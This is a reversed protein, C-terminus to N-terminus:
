QAGSILPNSECNRILVRVYPLAKITEEIEKDSQNSLMHDNNVLEKCISEVVTLLISNLDEPTMKEDEFRKICESYRMLVAKDIECAISSAIDLMRKMLCIYIKKEIENCFSVVQDYVKKYKEKLAEAEIFIEDMRNLLEYLYETTSYDDMKSIDIIMDCVMKRLKEDMSWLNDELVKVLMETNTDKMSEEMGSIIRKITATMGVIDERKEVVGCSENQQADDNTDIMNFMKLADSDALGKNVFLKYFTELMRISKVKEMFAEYSEFEARNSGNLVEPMNDLTNQYRDFVAKHIKRCISLLLGVEEEKKIKCKIKDVLQINHIVKLIKNQEDKSKDILKNVINKNIVIKVLVTEM